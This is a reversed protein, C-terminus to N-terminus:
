GDHAMEVATRYAPAHGYRARYSNRFHGASTFGWRRAVSEITDEPRGEGLRAHARTLRVDCVYTEVEVGLDALFAARLAAASTGAVAALEAIGLAREPYAEIYDVAEGLAFRNPADDSRLRASYNHEAGLLLQTLLYSDLQERVLQPVAGANLQGALFSVAGLLAQGTHSGLEVRLRFRPAEVPEHLLAALQAHMTQVPIKVVFQAADATWELVARDQPSVLSGSVGAATATDARGQRVATRGRVPLNLHYCGTAPPVVLEAEGGYGLYGFTLRPSAVLNLRADLTGPAKLRHPVYARSVVHQAEDADATRMAPFRALPEIDCPGM